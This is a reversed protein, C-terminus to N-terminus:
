NTCRIERAMNIPVSGLRFCPPPLVNKKSHRLYLKELKGSSGFVGSYTADPPGARAKQGRPQSPLLTAISPFGSAVLAQYGGEAKVKLATSSEAEREGLNRSNICVESRGGERGGGRRREREGETERESKAEGTIETM